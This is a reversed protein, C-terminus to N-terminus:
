KLLFSRTLTDSEIVLNSVQLREMLSRDDAPMLGGGLTPSRAGGITEEIDKSFSWPTQSGGAAGSNSAGGLQVEKQAMYIYSQRRIPRAQATFATSYIKGRNMATAKGGIIIIIIIISMGLIANWMHIRARSPKSAM